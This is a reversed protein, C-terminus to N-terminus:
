PEFWERNTGEHVVNMFELIMCTFSSETGSDLFLLRLCVETAVHRAVIRREMNRCKADGLFKLLSFLRVDEGRNADLRIAARDIRRLIRGSGSQYERSTITVPLSFSFSM